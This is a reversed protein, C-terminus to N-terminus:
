FGLMKDVEDPTYTKKDQEFEKMAQQYLELDIENEIKELTAEKLLQSSSIGHLNSYHQIMAKDEDSVRVTITQTNTM